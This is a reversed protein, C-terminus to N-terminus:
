HLAICRLAICHLAICLLAICNLAILQLVNSYFRICYLVICHLCHLLIFYFTICHLSIYYLANCHLLIYYFRICHLASDSTMLMTSLGSASATQHSLKAVTHVLETNKYKTNQRKTNQYELFNQIKTNIYKHVKKSAITMQHGLRLVLVARLCKREHFM